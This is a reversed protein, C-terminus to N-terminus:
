LFNKNCKGKDISDAKEFKQLMDFLAKNEDKKEEVAKKDIIMLIVDCNMRKFRNWFRVRIYQM